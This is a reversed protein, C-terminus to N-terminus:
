KGGGKKPEAPKVPETKKNDAELDAENKVTPEDHPASELEAIRKKMAEIQLEQEKAAQTLEVIQKDAVSDKQERGLLVDKEEIEYPKFNQIQWDSVLMKGQKGLTIKMREFKEAVPETKGLKAPIYGGNKRVNQPAAVTIVDILKKAM